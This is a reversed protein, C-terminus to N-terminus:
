WVYKLAHELTTVFDPILYVSKEEITYHRHDSLNLIDYYKEVYNYEVVRGLWWEKEEKILVKDDQKFIISANGINKDQKDESIDVAEMLKSIKCEPSHSYNNEILNGCYQCYTNPKPVNVSVLYSIIKMVNDFKNSLHSVEADLEERM